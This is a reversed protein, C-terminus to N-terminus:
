SGGGRDEKELRGQRVFTVGLVATLLALVLAVDVAAPQNTAQGLVLALAVGTTGFLFAALLSDVGGKQWTLYFLGLAVNLLLVSAAFWWFTTM